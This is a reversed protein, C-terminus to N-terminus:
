EGEQATPTSPKGLTPRVAGHLVMAEQLKAVGDIAPQSIRPVEQEARLYWALTAHYQHETLAVRFRFTKAM